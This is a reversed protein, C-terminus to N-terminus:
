GSNCVQGFWYSQHTQPLSPSVPVVLSLLLVGSIQASDLAGNAGTYVQTVAICLCVLTEM